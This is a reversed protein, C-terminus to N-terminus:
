KIGALMLLGPVDIILAVRGDGLIAASSIGQVDGILSGLSKVVVEEQGLLNDVIIGAILKGYHVVIVYNWGEKRQQSNEMGFVDSLNVLPLVTNRLKTVPKGRITQIESAPLHLIEAVMVLPFAFTSGGLDVLMTPVIALTLPLIIQFTTGQGRVTEVSVTGNLRQINNRVIDMGVGRGSINSVTKSTSLGSLFILNVADEDSMHDADEQTIMGKSLASKKLADGNIGQGDDQVNIIIHGQEHEASLIITGVEPKNAKRRTEPDEIGHDISNRLMHIIPDNIEEIVSRDLETEEGRIVLEIKKDLKHSLDRVLRPFKDFVNSVPLMRISLVEEQLQDTIRGLHAVTQSFEEIDGHGCLGNEMRSRIQYLHNRDTILEGVMNLLANLHGVSTRVMMDATNNKKVMVDQSSAQNQHPNQEEIMRRIEDDLQPQTLLGKEVLVHGLIQKEKSTKQLLLVEDLQDQTIIKRRVLFDGLMQYGEVPASTESEATKKQSSLGATIEEKGVFMKDIDSIQTLKKRIEDQSLGTKVRARFTKVPLASDVVEMPPDQFTITGAEQLALIIQFARAASAVSKSSIEVLIPRSDDEFQLVQDIEEQAQSPESIVPKIEVPEESKPAAPTVLQDELKNVWGQQLLGTLQTELDKVDVDCATSTEVEERLLRLADVTDLCADIVQSNINLSKKRLADFVTELAHTATVMREHGIMGAMGKLTHAARFATQIDEENGQTKELKLLIDDLSQLNEDAEALFIPIEDASIDFEAM